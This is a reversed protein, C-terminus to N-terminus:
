WHIASWQREKVSYISINKFEEPPIAIDGNSRILRKVTLTGRVTQDQRSASINSVGVEVTDFTRFVYDFYANKRESPVTVERLANGDRARIAGSLANFQRLVTSIDADSIVPVTANQTAESVGLARSAAERAQEAEFDRALRAADSREKEAREAELRLEQLQVQRRAEARQVARDVELRADREAQTDGLGTLAFVQGSQESASGQDGSLTGSSAGSSASQSVANDIDQKASLQPQM